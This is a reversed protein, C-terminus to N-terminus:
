RPIYQSKFFSNLLLLLSFFFIWIKRASFIYRAPIKIPLDTQYPCNKCKYGITIIKNSLTKNRIKHVVNSCVPCHKLKTKHNPWHRYKIECRIFKSKLALSRVRADGVHYLSDINGLEQQVINKLQRQSNITGFRLIVRQIATLVDENRAIKHPM